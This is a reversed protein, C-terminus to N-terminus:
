RGRWKGAVIQFVAGAAAAYVGAGVLDLLGGRGLGIEPAWVRIVFLLPVGMTALGVIRRLVGLWPAVMTLLAVLAGIAGVVLLVIGLNLGSAPGQPDILLRAPIDRPLGQGTRTWPLVASVIVTVAGLLALSAGWPFGRPRPHRRRRPRPEPTPAPASGTATPLIATDSAGPAPRRPISETVADQRPPEEAFVLNWDAFIDADDLVDAAATEEAAIAARAPAGCRGCFRDEEELPEGCTTCFGAAEVEAGAESGVPTGCRGCFRDEAHVPSGCSPCDTM